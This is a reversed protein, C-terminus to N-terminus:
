VSSAAATRRVLARQSTDGIPRIQRDLLWQDVRARDMACEEALDGVFIRWQDVNRLPVGVVIPIGIQTAEAIAERLGGGEAEVKGFKNLILLAPNQAIANRLLVFAEALATRDLRCGSAATGRYESLQLVTGSALEEIEMDCKTRERVFQNHQVLGAVPVDASRLGYGLDALFQDAAIGDSYTVALIARRGSAERM